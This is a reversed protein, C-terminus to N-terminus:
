FERKCLVKVIYSWLSATFDLNFKMKWFDANLNVVSDM